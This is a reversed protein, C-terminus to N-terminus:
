PGGLPKPCSGYMIIELFGLGLTFSVNRELICIYFMFWSVTESFTRVQQSPFEVMFCKPVKMPELMLHHM